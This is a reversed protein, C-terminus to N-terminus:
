VKNKCHLVFVHQTLMMFYLQSVNFWINRTCFLHWKHKCIFNKSICMYCAITSTKNFNAAVQLVLSNNILCFDKISTIKNLCTEYFIPFHTSKKLQSLLIFLCTVQWGKIVDLSFTQTSLIIFYNRKLNCKFFSFLFNLFQNWFSILQPSNLITVRVDNSHIWWYRRFPSLKHSPVTQTVAVLWLAVHRCAMSAAASCTGHNPISCSYVRSSISM